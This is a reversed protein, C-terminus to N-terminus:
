PLGLTIYAAREGGPAFGLAFYVPGLPSDVAVFPALSKRLGSDDGIPAHRMRGAELAMGAWAGRLLPIELVRDAWTIAATEYAAGYFRDPGWASLNMFGGLRFQSAFPLPDPGLKGGARLRLSFAHSSVSATSLTEAEWRNFDTEDGLARRASFLTLNAAQGSSPFQRNDLTDARLQLRLGGVHGAVSRPVGPFQGTDLTYRQVGTVFGLRAQVAPTADVGLDLGALRESVSYRFLRTDNMYIVLPRLSAEVRPAIFWRRDLDLPQFWESQLLNHRGLQADNRWEAGYSNLWTRRYSALLNFSSDTSFDSQLGLGFRLYDPGWSKESVDYTVVPGAAGPEVKFGVREFDGWGYLRRLDADMVQQDFPQGVRTGVARLLVEPNVRETGEVRVEAVPEARNSPASARVAAFRARWGAWAGADLALASLRAAQERAAAEGIAVARAAGTFDGASFGGLAPSILVDRPTLEALSARVNQETLINIMQGSVDLVSNIQERTMLPTGLNVAIVVDAGMERAVDVPLNRVLGGDVLERGDIEVPAVVGPVSMSARMVNPVDGKDFVVMKGSEIDTAIARFPIPMRDFRSVGGSHVLRRLVAELATGSVVGKPLRLGREVDVGLEPGFFMRADDAKRRMSREPRPPDDTFLAETTLSGLRAEMEAVTTGSAYAGGVIAGMSTGAICDVPVRLEELVKLVGVHAAGRAGGGSLVLCIRPREPADAAAQARVPAIGGPLLAM